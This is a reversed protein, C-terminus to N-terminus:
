GSLEEPELSAAPRGDDTVGFRRIRAAGTLDGATERLGALEALASPDGYEAAQRLLTEAGAADGAEERRRALAM